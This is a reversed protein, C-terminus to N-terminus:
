KNEDFEKSYNGNAWEGERVHEIKEGNKHGIVFL